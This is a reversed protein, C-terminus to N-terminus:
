NVTIPIRDSYTWNGGFADKAKVVIFYRGTKWSLSGTLVKPEIDNDERAGVTISATFEHSRPTDFDHTHLLTITNSANVEEDTLGQEEHLLGIYLGGLATEDTVSGTLEIVEGDSFGANEAPASSVVLEPAELDEPQKIEVEEEFTTQYGEMDTIAFHFHYHGTDAHLPIEFHEHFVTNKLGNFKTYITDFEWPEDFFVVMSKENHEEEPHLEVEIYDITGEAVIEAELHFDSGAFGTKNNEYGLEFQLIEPPPSDDNEQCSITLFMLAVFLLSFFPKFRIMKFKMIM